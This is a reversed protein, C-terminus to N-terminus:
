QKLHGIDAMSREIIRLRDDSDRSERRWFRLMNAVKWVAQEWGNPLMNVLIPDKRAAILVLASRTCSRLMLWTGHHRNFFGDENRQIRKVCYFLSKRALNEVELSPPSTAGNLIIETMFPWYMMEYCDLLHGELIFKLNNYLDGTAPSTPRQFNLNHPLSTVWESAQEEFDAVGKVDLKPQDHNTKHFSNLIRNSLRRLAIEALYYYWVAERQTKLGEPPKPYELPYTLDWISNEFVNLELRLESCLTLLSSAIRPVVSVARIQLLDVM